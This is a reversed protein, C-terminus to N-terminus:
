DNFINKDVKQNVINIIENTKNLDDRGILIYKKQLIYNINNEKMYEILVPEISKLLKTKYAILNKRQNDLRNKNNLNFDNVEKKLIDLKKGFEQENLINKQKILEDEKKKLDNRIKKFKLDNKKNEELINQNVIKGVDSQNVIKDLDIFYIESYASPKLAFFFLFVIYSFKKM